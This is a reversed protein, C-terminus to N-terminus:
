GLGLMVTAAFGLWIFPGMPLSDKIGKRKSLLLMASVIACMFFSIILTYLVIGIGCLFGIAGFVKVDGYGIGGRTIKAMLLLYLLTVIGAIFSNKFGTMLTGDNIIIIELIASLCRGCLLIYICSNPIIYLKIDTISIVNLVALTLLLKCANLWADGRVGSFYGCLAAIMISALYAFVKAKLTIQIGAIEGNGFKSEDMLHPLYWQLLIFLTIAVVAAWALSCLAAM